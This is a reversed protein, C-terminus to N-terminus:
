SGRQPGLLRACPQSHESMWCAHTNDRDHQWLAACHCASRSSSPCDARADRSKLKTVLTTAARVWPRAGSLLRAGKPACPHSHESLGALTHTM